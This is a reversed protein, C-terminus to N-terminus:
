EFTPRRGHSFDVVFEFHLKSPDAVAPVPPRRAIKSTDALLHGFSAGTRPRGRREAAAADAAAARLA